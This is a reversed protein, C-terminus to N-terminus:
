QTKNIDLYVLKCSAFYYADKNKYALIKNKNNDFIFKPNRQKSKKRRIDKALYYDHTKVIEKDCSDYDSFTSIVEYYPVNFNYNKSDTYNLFSVIILIYIQSM